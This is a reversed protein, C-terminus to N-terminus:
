FRKQVSLEAFFPLTPNDDFNQGYHKGVTVFTNWTGISYQVRAGFKFNGGTALYWGDQIEPYYDKLLDHKIHTVIAKDFGAIGLVGWKPKVYGAQLTFDTGINYLRAITSEYRRFVIAPKFVVSFNGRRLLEGQVITKLKWDDLVDDGFPLTLEAGVVLPIHKTKLVYGYSLGYYSSYDAGFHASVIHKTNDLARFNVDQATLAFHTFVTLGIVILIKMKTSLYNLM